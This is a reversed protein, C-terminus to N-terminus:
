GEGGLLKVAFEFATGDFPCLAASVKAVDCYGQAIGCVRIKAGKSVCTISSGSGSIGFRVSGPCKPLDSCGPLWLYVQLLTLFGSQSKPGSLFEPRMSWYELSFNM